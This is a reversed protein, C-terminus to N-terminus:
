RELKPKLPETSWVVANQLAAAVIPVTFLLLLPLLVPPGLAIALTRALAALGPGDLPVAHADRLMAAGAGALARAAQPAGALALLAATGFLLTTAVERSVVLQGKARAEELRRQSPAETKQTDDRDEAM